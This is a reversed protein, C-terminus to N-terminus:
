ARASRINAFGDSSRIVGSKGSFGNETSQLKVLNQHIYGIQGANTICRYWVGNKELAWVTSGSSVTNMVPYEFGAGWRLNAYGDSSSIKADSNVVKDKDTRSADPTYNKDKDFSGPNENGSTGWSGTNPATNTFRVYAGYMYGEVGTRIVRVKHWTNGKKLIELQDGNKGAGVIPQGAGAVRRVYASGDSTPTKVYGYQAAYAGAAFAFLVATLIFAIMKKMTEDGKHGKKHGKSSSFFRSTGKEM